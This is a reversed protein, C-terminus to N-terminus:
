HQPSVVIASKSQDGGSFYAVGKVAKQLPSAPATTPNEPYKRGDFALVAYYPSQIGGGGVSVILDRWENTSHSSAVVPPRVLTIYSILRYAASENAFVLLTCGGSGCFDGSSLYVLTEAEIGNRLNVRNYSYSFADQGTEHRIAEELREDRQTEPAASREIRPESSALVPSVAFPCLIVGIQLWLRIAAAQRITRSM